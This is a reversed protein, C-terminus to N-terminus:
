VLKYTYSNSRMLVDNLLLWFYQFCCYDFIEFCNFLFLFCFSYKNDFLTSNADYGPVIPYNTVGWENRACHLDSHCIGCFLIKITVDDAGTERSIFCGFFNVGGDCSFFILVKCIVSLSTYVRLRKWFRLYYRCVWKKLFLIVFFGFKIKVKIIYIYFSGSRRFM